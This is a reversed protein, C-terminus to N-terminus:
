KGTHRIEMNALTANGAVGIARFWITYAPFGMVNTRQLAGGRIIWLGTWRGLYRDGEVLKLPITVNGENTEIIATVEKVSYVRGWVWVSFAQIEGYSLNYYPSIKLEKTFYVDGSKGVQSTIARESIFFSDPVVLSQELLELEKKLTEKESQAAEIQKELQQIKAQVEQLDQQLDNLERQAETLDQMLSNRGLQYSVLSGVLIAVVLLAMIAQWKREM